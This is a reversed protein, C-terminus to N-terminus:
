LSFSAQFIPSSHYFRSLLEQSYDDEDGAVGDDFREATLLLSRTCRAAVWNFAFIPLDAKEDDAHPKVSRSIRLSATAM